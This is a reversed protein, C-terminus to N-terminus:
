TSEQPSKFSKPVVKEFCTYIVLKDANSSTSAYHTFSLNTPKPATFLLLGHLHWLIDLLAPEVLIGRLESSLLKRLHDGLVLSCSILAVRRFSFCVFM